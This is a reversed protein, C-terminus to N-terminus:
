RHLGGVQPRAAAGQDAFDNIAVGDDQVPGQVTRGLHTQDADLCGFQREPSFVEEGPGQGVRGSLGQLFHDEPSGHLQAEAAPLHIAVAAQQGVQEGLVFGPDLALHQALAHGTDVAEGVVAGPDGLHQGPFVFGPGLSQSDPFVGEVCRSGGPLCAAM